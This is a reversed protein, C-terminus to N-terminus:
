GRSRRAGSLAARVMRRARCITAPRVPRRRRGARRCEGADAWRPCRARLTRGPARRRPGADARVLEHAEGVLIQVGHLLEPAGFVISERRWRVFRRGLVILGIALPQLQGAFNLGASGLAEVADSRQEVVGFILDALEDREVARGAAHVRTSTPVSGSPVGLSTARRKPM